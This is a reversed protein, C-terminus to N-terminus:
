GMCHVTKTTGITRLRGWNLPSENFKEAHNDVMAAPTLLKVYTLVTVRLVLRQKAKGVLTYCSFARFRLAQNHLVM